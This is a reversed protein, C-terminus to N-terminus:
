NGRIGSSGRLLPPRSIPRKPDVLDSKVEKKGNEKEHCTLYFKRKKTIDVKQFIVKSSVIGSFFTACWRTERTSVRRFIYM